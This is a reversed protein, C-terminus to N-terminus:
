NILNPYFIKLRDKLRPAIKVYKYESLIYNLNFKLDEISDVILILKINNDYAKQIVNLLQKISIIKNPAKSDFSQKTRSDVYMIVYLYTNNLNHVYLDKVRESDDLAKDPVYVNPLDFKHKGYIEIFKDFTIGKEEIIIGAGNVSKFKILAELKDAGIYDDSWSVRLSEMEIHRMIINNVAPHDYKYYYPIYSNIKISNNSTVFIAKNNNYIYKIINDLFINGIGFDSNIDDFIVVDINNLIKAYDFERGKNKNYTDGLYKNTIFLVKKHKSIFKAVAVALHTKGVGATGTIILGSPYTNIMNLSVFLAFKKCLDLLEKQIPTAVKYDAFTKDKTDEAFDGMFNIPMPTGSLKYKTLLETFNINTWNDIENNMFKDLRDKNLRLIYKIGGIIDTLEKKDNKLLKALNAQSNNERALTTELIYDPDTYQAIRHITASSQNENYGKILVEKLEDFTLYPKSDTFIERGFGIFKGDKYILNYGGLHGVLHKESYDPCGEIFVFDDNQLNEYKPKIRDFLFHLPNGLDYADPKDIKDIQGMFSNPIIFEICPKGFVNNFKDTGYNNLIYMYFCAYLTTACEAITTSSFWACLADAPTNKNDSVFFRKNVNWYSIHAYRGLREYDILPYRSKQNYESSYYVNKQNNINIMIDTLNTSTIIDCNISRPRNSLLYNRSLKINEGDTNIDEIYGGGTILKQKEKLKLYKAKYKLYKDKSSM